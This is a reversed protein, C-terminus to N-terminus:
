DDLDAELVERLEDVREAADGVLAAAHVRLDVAAAAVPAGRQSQLAALGLDVAVLRQRERARALVEAVRALVVERARLALLLQDRRHLVLDRRELREDPERPDRPCRRARQAGVHGPRRQEADGARRQGAARAFLAHELRGARRRQGVAAGAQGDVVRRLLVLDLAEEAALRRLELVLVLVGDFVEVLGAEGQGQRGAQGGRGERVRRARAQAEVHRLRHQLLGLGQLAGRDPPLRARGAGRVDRVRDRASRRDEADGRVPARERLPVRLDANLRLTCAYPPHYGVDTFFDLM